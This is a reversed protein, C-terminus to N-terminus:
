DMNQEFSNFNILITLENRDLKTQQPSLQEGRFFIRRVGMNPVCRFYPHKGNPSV